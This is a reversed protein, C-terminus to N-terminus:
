PFEDAPVSAVLRATFGEPVRPGDARVLPVHLILAFVIALRLYGTPM